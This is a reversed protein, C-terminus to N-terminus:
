KNKLRQQNVNNLLEKVKKFVDETSVNKMCAKTGLPCERKYCPACEPPKWVFTAFKGLPATWVPSTPGFIAITKQGMAASLHSLGSDNGIFLAANKILCAAEKLTTKGVMNVIHEPLKKKHIRIADNKSGLVVTKISYNMYLLNSIEIFRDFLWEKARGFAAFPSVIAYPFDFLQMECEPLFYVEPIEPKIGIPRLLQLQTKITHKEKWDPPIKLKDTLFIDRMEFSFGVRRRAGSLYMFFASSFSLPVVIGLDYKDKRLSLSLRFLDKGTHFTFTDFDHFIDKLNERCIVKVDHERLNYLLIRSMVADGLWNPARFLIRM